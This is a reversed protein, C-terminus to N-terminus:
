FGGMRDDESYARDDEFNEYCKDSTVNVIGKINPLSRCVNLINVTGMINTEFTEVPEKYSYRVLPQAALHFIIDPNIESIKDELVAKNRIDIMFGQMEINLLRFHSPDTNVGDSIGFVQAGLKTLWFSLWAGKFGTHGTVLVKKDRYIDSFLNM